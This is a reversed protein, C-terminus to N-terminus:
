VRKYAKIIVRFFHLVGILTILWLLHLLILPILSIAHMAFLVFACVTETSFGSLRLWLNKEEGEEEEEEEEIARFSVDHGPGKM